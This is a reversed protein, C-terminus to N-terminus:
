ITAAAGALVDAYHADLRNALAECARQIAPDLSPAPMEGIADSFVGEAVEEHYPYGLFEFIRRFGADPHTALDEYQVLLVRPDRDLGLEFFLHNRMYWYLCAGDVESVEERYLERIAAATREPVREGRAGMKEPTGEAVYRALDKPHGGWHKVSSNAADQYRRYVWLAKSGPHRDLLDDTWQSDLIASFSVLPAPSRQILGAIRPAPRLYYDSFAISFDSEPYDWGLPSKGIARVVM